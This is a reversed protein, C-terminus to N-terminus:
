ATQATTKVAWEIASRTKPSLGQGLEAPCFRRQFALVAAAPTRPDFRYGIRALQELADEYALPEIAESTYPGIALGADSLRAWPFLEGPDEKRDPALDSHGIVSSATLGHRDQIDTLLSELAAIQAEPFARYGWYHGPNVLEIGISVQNVDDYASWGGRGAHWARNEEEVMQFIRGDEEILYHASVKADSDCLRALAEAGTEMGTYHVVVLAVKAGNRSDFNPSPSNIVTPLQNPEM